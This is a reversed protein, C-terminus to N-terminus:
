AHPRSREFKELTALVGRREDASLRGGGGSMGAYLLEARASFIREVGEATEADLQRSARAFAADISGATRDTALATEWQIM